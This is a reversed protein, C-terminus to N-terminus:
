SWFFARVLLLFNNKLGGTIKTRREVPTDFIDLNSPTSASTGDSWWNRFSKCFGQLIARLATHGLWVACLTFIKHPRFVMPPNFYHSGWSSRISICAVSELQKKRQLFGPKKIRTRLKICSQMTRNGGFYMWTQPQLAVFHLFTWAIHSSECLLKKTNGEEM